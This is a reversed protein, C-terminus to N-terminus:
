LFPSLHLLFILLVLVCFLFVVGGGKGFFLSEIFVRSLVGLFRDCVPIDIVLMRCILLPLTGFNFLAFTHDKVM